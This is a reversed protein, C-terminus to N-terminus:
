HGMWHSRMTGFKMESAIAAVALPQQSSEMVFDSSQHKNNQIKRRNSNKNHRAGNKSIWGEDRKWNTWGARSLVELVCDVWFCRVARCRWLTLWAVVCMEHVRILWEVRCPFHVCVPWRFHKIPKQRGYDAKFGKEKFRTTFEQHLPHIGQRIVFRSREHLAVNGNHLLWSFIERAVFASDM